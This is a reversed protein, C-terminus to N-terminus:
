VSQALSNKTVLLSTASSLRSPRRSGNPWPQLEQGLETLRYGTLHRTVLRCGFYGELEALRRQVTSQNVGLVKAAALMRGTRAFALYYKLDDWAFM